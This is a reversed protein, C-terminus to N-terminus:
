RFSQRFKTGASYLYVLNGAQNNNILRVGLYHDIFRKQNYWSKNTDIYNNNIVGEETFMPVLPNVTTSGQNFNDQVNLQGNALVTSTNPVYNSMDRFENIYWFNNVLRANTLYYIDKQESIQTSNYVYFETFGPSTVKAIRLNQGAGKPTVEEAWYRLASFIKPQGVQSNDIYEFEFNYTDGYFIGPSDLASHEWVNTPTTNVLSYYERQNNAFLNPLYSHRSGWVKIEPYYSMTWGSEKFYAEDTFNVILKGGPIGSGSLTLGTETVNVSFETGATLLETLVQQPILERKSLIIRKYKPDYAANFGFFETPSDFNINDGLDIYSELQYPINDLFWKEMGLSSLEEINESMMYVKRDRRNVFFQGFRTTLSAFQCDTGGYGETTPIMEDPNQEFIDGSGVFAQTNDNLGLQQRGRTVFLSRETHLYLISGLTFAKTIEGRNKPIDKYDLALFFRYKDQISGDDVTSRITRTPYFTPNFLKKPRPVTVKIDQVASYNNMYLLHDSKTYDNNPGGFLVDAGISADFFLSEDVTVGAANDGQHRFGLLDDSECFFSFVTAYPDIPRYNYQANPPLTTQNLGFTFWSSAQDIPRSSDHRFAAGYDQSTARFSYRSVYTDGGFVTETKYIGAAEKADSTPRDIVKQYYGTWVLKQQDFPRYVNKKYSCLNVLYMTPWAAYNSPPSSPQVNVEGLEYGSSIPNPAGTATAWNADTWWHAYANQTTSVYSAAEEIAVPLGSMLSFAMCSEGAFHMLYDVNKFAASDTNKLLTSGTIYTKSNTDLVFATHYNNLWYGNTGYDSSWNSNSNNPYDPNYYRQAIWISTWYNAPGPPEANTNDAVVAQEEDFDGDGPDAWEYWQLNGITSNYWDADIFRRQGNGPKKRNGGSWMRMNLVKQVDIHSAGSLTHKNKLLNFDHFSFQSIARIRESPKIPNANALNYYSYYPPVLGKLFWATSHPGHAATSMRNTLVIDPEYWSPMVVSQGIVTKQEQSRKAYYIKFGQVQSKIFPPIAINGFEVGLIKITEGLYLGNVSTGSTPSATGFLTPSVQNEGSLGDLGIFSYEENKNPPMKHHRVKEGRISYQQIPTGEGVATWVDFDDTDPYVEDQNEWYSMETSNPDLLYQTDTVQHLKSDPYLDEFEELYMGFNTQVANSVAATDANEYFGTNPIEKPKRGPIHYAYTESGDKLVFSIYFAYTESRRYGRYKYSMRVDKYGKRVNSAFFEDNINNEQTDKYQDFNNPYGENLISSKIRKPDFKPVPKAIPSVTISNAFRQYGIDGRARLNSIYLRNDLQVFSKATEYRVSDIVVEAISASAIQELGTYTIELDSYFNDDEPDPIKVIELEYAFESSEQNTGGGFRQIIVPRVHTYNSPAPIEVEWTISKNSQSGQPDGTITETPIADEHATVVHVPNSTVLYNTRNLDEDVYALALHYTGSVVGGGEEIRVDRFEPIDGANMFLDLKQVTYDENGYLLTTNSVKAQRTINIVRPPNYETIYEIGTAPETEKKIYNDTFYVLVEGNVDIKSTAEITNSPKFNLRSNNYIITNTKASPDVISIACDPSGSKTFNFFLIIRGDKLPCQGIINDITFGGKNTFAVTGQENVVAGKQYYLNANLADRYTGEPQDVREPDKVMGATFKKM